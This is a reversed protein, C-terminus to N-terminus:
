AGVAAQLISVKIDGFEAVDFIVREPIPAQGPRRGEWRGQWWDRFRVGTEGPDQSQHRSSVSGPCLRLAWIIFGIGILWLSDSPVTPPPGPTPVSRPVATTASRTSRSSGEADRRSSISASGSVCALRYFIQRMTLPLYAYEELVARVQELLRRTAARPAWRIFGRPRTSTRDAGGLLDTVADIV